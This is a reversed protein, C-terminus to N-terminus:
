DRGDFSCAIRPFRALLGRVDAAIAAAAEGRAARGILRAIEAMEPPGLGIRSVEHTALRAGTRRGHAMDGSLACDTFLINAAQCRMEMDRAGDGLRLFLQHTETAGRDAAIVEFGQNALAAALARANDVMRRALEPGFRATEALSVALAAFKNQDRTQMFGPFALEGLRRALNEDNTLVLGGVPGGMIKHTSVVVMHAGEHLPRQFDGHAILLGLHAADYVLTAGVRDAIRRLERVPYPFLVNSGGIVLMAPRLREAQEAVADIDIEFAEGRRAMPQIRAGTLAIPGRAHYAYNGGGDEDQSLVVDGPRLVAFFALANAM